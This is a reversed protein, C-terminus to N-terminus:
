ADEGGSLIRSGQGMLRVAIGTAVVVLGPCLSVWPAQGLLSRGDYIISGWEPTPPQVGAGLFPLSAIVGIVLVVDSLAYTFTAPLVNPLLHRRVVTWRSLGTVQAAVVFDRQRISLTEGRAIRAYVSWSTVFLAVLIAPAGAPLVWLNWDPGIVVSLALILIAFPFALIADVIRMIVRDLVTGAALGSVVGLFTGFILPVTVGLAAVVLDLRGGAMTRVFVDRGFNDTGFPHQVSPAQLPTGVFDTTSVGSLPPWLFCALTIVLLLGAGIAFTRSARRRRSGIARATSTPNVEVVAM